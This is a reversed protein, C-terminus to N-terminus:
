KLKWFGAWYTSTTKNKGIRVVIHNGKRCNRVKVAEVKKTFGNQKAWETFVVKAGNPIELGQHGHIWHFLDYGYPDATAMDEYRVTKKEERM